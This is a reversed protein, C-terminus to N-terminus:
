SDRENIHSVKLSLILNNNEDLYYANILANSSWDTYSSYGKPIEGIYETCNGSQCGEYTNLVYGNADLEIRM